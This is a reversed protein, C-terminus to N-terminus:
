ISVTDLLSLCYFASMVAHYERWLVAKAYNGGIEGKGEGEGILSKVWAVSGAYAVAEGVAEVWLHFL